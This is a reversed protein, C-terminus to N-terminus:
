YCNMIVEIVRIKEAIRYGISFIKKDIEFIITGYCSIVRIFSGEIIGKL